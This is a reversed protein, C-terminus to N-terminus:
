KDHYYWQKVDVGASTSYVVRERNKTQHYSDSYEQFSVLNEKNFTWDSNFYMKHLYYSLVGLQIIKEFVDSFKLKSHNNERM